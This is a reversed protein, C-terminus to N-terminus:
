SLGESGQEGPDRGEMRGVGKESVVNTIKLFMGMLHGTRSPVEGYSGPFESFSSEKGLCSSHESGLQISGWDTM